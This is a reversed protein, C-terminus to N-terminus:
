SNQPKRRVILLIVAAIVAVGVVALAVVLAVNVGGEDKTEASPATTAPVADATEVAEEAKDYAFGSVTFELVIERSPMAYNFLGEDGGLLDKNWINICHVEYYYKEDETHIGPVVGEDFIYKTSGDMKVKTDTFKVPDGELPIDTSIYLLNFKEDNGFDFDTLKVQYTGNGKIECDTFTGDYKVADPGDWGTLGNFNNVISHEEWATGNPGLHSDDWQNRFIFSASQIGMYAHYVGNPDFPPIERVPKEEVPPTERVVEVATGFIATASNIKLHPIDAASDWCNDYIEITFEEANVPVVISLSRNEATGVWSATGVGTTDPNNDGTMDVGWSIQAGGFDYYSTSGGAKVAAAGGCWDNWSPEGEAPLVVSINFVVASVNGKTNLSSNSFVYGPDGAVGTYTIDQGISVLETAAVEGYIATASNITYHNVDPASDWCNDYFDIAFEEANVPVVVTMTGSAGTGVWSASGVGTTDPNNDGTMDVGWGVQAGGFDYYTTKDGARVALVEGCWDNWNPEGEAPLDISINFVMAGVKEGSSLQSSEFTYAPSQTGTYSISKGVAVTETKVDAAFSGTGLMMFMSVAFALALAWSLAKKPQSKKTNMIIEEKKREKEKRTGNGPETERNQKEPVKPNIQLFCLQGTSV